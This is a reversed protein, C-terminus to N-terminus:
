YAGYLGFLLRAYQLIMPGSLGFHTFLMEGFDTYVTKSNVDTVKLGVNKLSLGQMKRCAKDPSELPVLSPKAPIVTHGLKEAFRFGDGTSGTRPYSLGGTALIVNDFDCVNGDARVSKVATNEIIIDEVEATKIRAGNDLAFRRMTDVVDM